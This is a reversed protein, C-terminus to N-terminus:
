RIVAYEDAERGAPRATTLDLELQIESQRASRLDRRRLETPHQSILHGLKRFLISSQSKKSNM